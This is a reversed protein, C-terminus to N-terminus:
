CWDLLLGLPSWGSTELSLVSSLKLGEPSCTVLRVEVLREQELDGGWRDGSTVKWGSGRWVSTWWARCNLGRGWIRVM